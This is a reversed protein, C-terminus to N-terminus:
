CFRAGARRRRRAGSGPVGGVAAAARQLPAPRADVLERGREDGSVAARVVGTRFSNKRLSSEHFHTILTVNQRQQTSPPFCFSGLTVKKVCWATRM